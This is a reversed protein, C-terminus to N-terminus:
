EDGTLDTALLGTELLGGIFLPRNKRLQPLSQLHFRTNTIRVFTVCTYQVIGVQVQAIIKLKVLCEFGLHYM